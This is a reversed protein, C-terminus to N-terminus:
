DVLYVDIVVKGNQKRQQFQVAGGPGDLHRALRTATRGGVTTLKQLNMRSAGQPLTPTSLEEHKQSATM